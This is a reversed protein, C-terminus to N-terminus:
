ACGELACFLVTDTRVRIKDKRINDLIRLMSKRRIERFGGDWSWKGREPAAL